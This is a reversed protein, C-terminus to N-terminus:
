VSCLTAIQQVKGMDVLLQKIRRKLQPLRALPDPPELEGTFDLWSELVDVEKEILDMRSTVENQVNEIHTLLNLQWQLHTDVQEESGKRENCVFVTNGEASNQENMGDDKFSYQLCNKNETHFEQDEEFSSTDEDDSSMPDTVAKCDQGFSQPKQYSHESTIYTEEM